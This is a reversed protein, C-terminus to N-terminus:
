ADSSMGRWVRELARHRRRAERTPISLLRRNGCRVKGYALAFLEWRTLCLVTLKRPGLEVTLSRRGTWISLRM